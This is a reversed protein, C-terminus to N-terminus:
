AKKHWAYLLFLVGTIVFPSAYAMALVLPAHAATEYVQWGLLLGALIAMTAGITPSRWCTLLGAIALMMMIVRAAEMTLLNSGPSLPASGGIMVRLYLFGTLLALFSVAKVFIAWEDVNYSTASGKSM